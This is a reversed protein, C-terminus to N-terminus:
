ALLLGTCRGRTYIYLIALVEKELMIISSSLVIRRAESLSNRKLSPMVEALGWGSNRMPRRVLFGVSLHNVFTM